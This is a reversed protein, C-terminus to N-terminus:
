PHGGNLEKRLAKIASRYRRYVSSLTSGTINSIESFTFGANLHLSLVERQEQSLMAIAREIDLKEASTDPCTCAETTNKEECCHKRIYDIALNRASAFVWARCNNVTSDPPSSYLRMFLEQMIDDATERNNVIRLILTYLPVRLSRYIDAFAEKDGNRLRSFMEEIDM